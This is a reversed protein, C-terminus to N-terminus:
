EHDRQRIRILDAKREMCELARDNCVPCMGQCVTVTIKRLGSSVGIFKECKKSHSSNVTQQGNNNTVRVGLSQFAANDLPRLHRHLSTTAPCYLYALGSCSACPEFM